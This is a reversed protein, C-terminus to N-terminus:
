NGPHISMDIHGDPPGGDDGGGDGGGGGGGDGADGPGHGSGGGGSGGGHPQPAVGRTRDFKVINAMCNVGGYVGGIFAALMVIPTMTAYWGVVVSLATMGCSKLSNYLDSPVGFIEQANNQNVQAHAIFEQFKPGKLVHLEGGNAWSVIVMDYTGDKDWDTMRFFWGADNSTEELATGMHSTFNQFNSSGSLVHIETSNTGTETRKFAVLNPVPASYPKIIDFDYQCGDFQPLSTPTEILFETFFSKGSLIHVEVMGTGTGRTKIVWLDPLGDGDWDALRFQCASDTEEWATPVEFGYTQYNSEETLMHVETKGTGTGRKKVLFLNRRADTGWPGVLVTFDDNDAISM